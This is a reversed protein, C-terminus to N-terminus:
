KIPIINRVLRRPFVTYLTNQELYIGQAKKSTSYFNLLFYPIYPIEEALGIRSLRSVSNHMRM